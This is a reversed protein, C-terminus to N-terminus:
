DSGSLEQRVYVAGSTLLNPISRSIALGSVSDPDVVKKASKKPAAATSKSASKIISSLSLYVSMGTALDDGISVKAKKPKADEEDEHDSQEKVSKKNATQASGPQDAVTEVM